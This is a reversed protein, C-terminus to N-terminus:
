LMKLGTQSINDCTLVQQVVTITLQHHPQLLPAVLQVAQPKLMLHCHPLHVQDLLLLGAHLLLQSQDLGVHLHAPM